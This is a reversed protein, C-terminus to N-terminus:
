RCSRILSRVAQGDSRWRGASEELLMLIVMVAVFETPVPGSEAGALEALQLPFELLRVVGAYGGPFPQGTLGLEGFGADLYFNM